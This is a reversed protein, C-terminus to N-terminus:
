GALRVDPPHQEYVAVFAANVGGIVNKFDDDQGDTFGLLLQGRHPIVYLHPPVYSRAWALLAWACAVASLIAAIVRLWRMRIVGGPRAGSLRAGRLDSRSGRKCRAAAHERGRRCARAARRRRFDGQ